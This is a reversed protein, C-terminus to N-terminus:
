CACSGAEGRRQADEKTPLTWLVATATQTPMTASAVGASLTAILRM